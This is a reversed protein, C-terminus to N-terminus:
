CIPSSCSRKRPSPCSIPAMASKPRSPCIRRLKRSPRHSGGSKGGFRVAGAHNRNRGPVRRSRRGSGRRRLRHRAQWLRIQPWRRLRRRATRAGNRAQPAHPRDAIGAADLFVADTERIGIPLGLRHARVGFTSELFAAATDRERLPEASSSRPAREPQRAFGMFPTGGAPIRQYADLVRAMSRKRITPCCSPQFRSTRPSRRSIAFTRPLFWARSFTSM